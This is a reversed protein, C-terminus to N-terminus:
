GVGSDGAAKRGPFKKAKPRSQAGGQKAGDLGLGEPFVFFNGVEAASSKGMAIIEEGAGTLNKGESGDGNVHSTTASASHRPTCYYM